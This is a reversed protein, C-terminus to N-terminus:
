TSTKEISSEHVQEKEKPRAPKAKKEKEKEKGAKKGSDKGGQDVQSSKRDKKTKSKKKASSRNDGGGCMSAARSRSGGIKCQYKEKCQYEGAVGTPCLSRWSRFKGHLVCVAGEQEEGSKEGRKKGSSGVRDQKGKSKEPTVAFVPQPISQPAPQPTPEPEPDSLEESSSAGEEVSRPLPKPYVMKSWGQRKRICARKLKLESSANVARKILKIDRTLCSIQTMSAVALLPIYGKDSMSQRLYVNCWLNNNNLALEIQQGVVEQLTRGPFAHDLYEHTDMLGDTTLIKGEPTQAPDQVKISSKKKNSSKKM